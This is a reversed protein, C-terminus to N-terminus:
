NHAKSTEGWDNRLIRVDRRFYFFSKMGLILVPHQIVSVSRRALPVPRNSIIINVLNSVNTYVHQLIGVCPMKSALKDPQMNYM